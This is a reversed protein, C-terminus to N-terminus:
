AIKNDNMFSEILTKLNQNNVTINALWRGYKGTKYTQVYVEKNETLITKVYDSIIKGNECAYKGYIEPTDIDLLRVRIKHRINFGLDIIVDYTDGDVVRNIYGKYKYEVNLKPM